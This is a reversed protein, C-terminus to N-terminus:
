AGYKQQQDIEECICLHVLKQTQRYQKGMVHLVFRNTISNREEFIKGKMVTTVVVMLVIM